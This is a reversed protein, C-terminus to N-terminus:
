RIIVATLTIVILWLRLVMKSQALDIAPCGDTNTFYIDSLAAVGEPLNDNSLPKIEGSEIMEIYPTPILPLANWKMM